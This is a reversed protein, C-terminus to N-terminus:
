KGSKKAKMKAEIEMKLKKTREQAQLRIEPTFQGEKEKIM